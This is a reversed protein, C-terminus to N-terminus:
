RYLTQKAIRARRALQVAPEKKSLM